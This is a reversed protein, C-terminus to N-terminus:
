PRSTPTGAATYRNWADHSIGHLAMVRVREAWGDNETVLM